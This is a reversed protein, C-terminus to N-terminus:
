PTSTTPRDQDFIRGLAVFTAIFMAHHATVWFWPYMRILNLFKSNEAAMQTVTLYGFFYQQAAAEEAQFLELEDVFKKAVPQRQQHRRRRAV